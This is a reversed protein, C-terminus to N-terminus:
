MMTPRSVLRRRARGKGGCESVLVASSSDATRRRCASVLGIRADGAWVTLVRLCPPSSPPPCPEQAHASGILARGGQRPARQKAALSFVKM